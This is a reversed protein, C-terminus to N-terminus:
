GHTSVLQGKGAPLQDRGPVLPRQIPSREGRDAQSIIVPPWLSRTQAPAAKGGQSLPWEMLSGSPEPTQWCTLVWRQRLAVPWGLWVPSLRPTCVPGPLRNGHDKAEKAPTLFFFFFRECSFYGPLSIHVREIEATFPTFSFPHRCGRHALRWTIIEATTCLVPRMISRVVKDVEM